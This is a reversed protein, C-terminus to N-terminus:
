PQAMKRECTEYITEGKINKSINSLHGEANISLIESFHIKNPKDLNSTGQVNLAEPTCFAALLLKHGSTAESIEREIGDAMFQYSTSFNQEVITANM